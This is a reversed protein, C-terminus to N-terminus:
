RSYSDRSDYSHFCKHPYILSHQRYIALDSPAKMARNLPADTHFPAIQVGPSDIQQYLPQRVVCEIATSAVTNANSSHQTAAAEVASRVSLPIKPSVPTTSRCQHSCSQQNSIPSFLAQSLSRFIRTVGLETSLSHLLYRM